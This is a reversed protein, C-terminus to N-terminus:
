DPWAATAVEGGHVEVRLRVNHTGIVNLEYGGATLSPYVLSAVWDGGPTPRAHVAVHPYHHQDPAGAPRIEVEQGLMTDPMTVVLAGVDGGIDLMVMGQGAHPNETDVATM